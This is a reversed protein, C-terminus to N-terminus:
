FEENHYYFYRHVLQDLEHVTMSMYSNLCQSAYSIYDKMTNNDFVDDDLGVIGNFGFIWSDIESSKSYKKILRNFLLFHGYEHLLMFVAEKWNTDEENVRITIYNKHCIGQTIRKSHDPEAYRYYSGDLEIRLDKHKSELYTKLQQFNESTLM